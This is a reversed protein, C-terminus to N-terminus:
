MNAKKTESQVKRYKKPITEFDKHELEKLEVEKFPISFWIYFLFLVCAPIFLFFFCTKYAFHITLMMMGIILITLVINFITKGEESSKFADSVYIGLDKIKSNVLKSVIDKIYFM